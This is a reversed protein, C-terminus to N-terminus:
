RITGRRRDVAPARCVPQLPYGLKQIRPHGRRVTAARQQVRLQHPLVQEDRRSRVTPLQGTQEVELRGHDASGLVVERRARKENRGAIGPKEAARSARIASGVRDAVVVDSSHCAASLRADRTNYEALWEGRSDGPGEIGVVALESRGSMVRSRGAQRMGAGRSRTTFPSRMRYKSCPSPAGSTSICPKEPEACNSHPRTM